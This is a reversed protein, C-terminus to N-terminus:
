REPVGSEGLPITPPIVEHHTDALYKAIMVVGEENTLHPNENLRHSTIFEWVASEGDMIARLGAFLVEDFARYARLMDNWRAQNALQEGWSLSEIWAQMQYLTMDMSEEFADRHPNRGNFPRLATGYRSIGVGKRTLLEMILRDVIPQEENHQPPPNHPDVDNREM